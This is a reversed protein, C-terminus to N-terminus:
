KQAEVWRDIILMSFLQINGCTLCIMAAAAVYPPLLNNVAFKYSLAIESHEDSAAINYDTGGCIGCPRDGDIFEKAFRSIEEPTAM